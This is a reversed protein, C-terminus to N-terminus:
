HFRLAQQTTASSSAEEQTSDQPMGLKAQLEHITAKMEELQQQVTTPVPTPFEASAKRVQLIDILTEYNDAITRITEQLRPYTHIIDFEDRLFSFWMDMDHRLDDINNDRIVNNHTIKHLLVHKLMQVDKKTLEDGVTLLALLQTEEEPRRFRTEPEIPAEENPQEPQEAADM